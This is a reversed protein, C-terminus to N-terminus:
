RKDENPARAARAALELELSIAADSLDNLPNARCYNDTWAKVSNSSVSYLMDGSHDFTARSLYGLIWALRLYSGDQLWDGCGVLGPGMQLRVEAATPTACLGLGLAGAIPAAWSFGTRM